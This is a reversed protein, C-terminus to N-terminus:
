YRAVAGPAAGDAPPLAQLVLQEEFKANGLTWRRDAPDYRIFAQGAAISAPRDFGLWSAQATSGAPPAAAADRPAAGRQGSPSPAGSPACGAALLTGLALFESRRM